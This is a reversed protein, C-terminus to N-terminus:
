CDPYGLENLQDACARHIAEQLHTPINKRWGGSRGSGVHRLTSNAKVLDATSEKRRMRAITNAEIAAEIEAFTCEIGLSTSINTFEEVPGAAIDEYRVLRVGSGDKESAVKWSRVHDKWRGLGHVRGKLFRKVFRELGPGSLGTMQQYRYESLVVDRVDRVLYVARSYFRPDPEHTKVLLGGSPLIPRARRHNGIYPVRLNVTKFDAEEGTLIQYIVFRVWTSGSRPYSAIAADLPSLGRHRVVTRLSRLGSAKLGIRLVSKLRGALHHQLDAM